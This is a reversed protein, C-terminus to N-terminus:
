VQTKMLEQYAEIAKNRVQVAFELSLVAKQTAVMAQHVNEVDGAAVQGALKDADQQMKNVQEIADSLQEGFPKAGAEPAAASKTLSAFSNQNQTINIRM